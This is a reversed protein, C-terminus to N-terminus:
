NKQNEQEYVEDILLNEQKAATTALKDCIENQTHGSHGKVWKLTPRTERYLRLFRKWLDTNKVKNWNKKEWGFLWNKLVADVVYKSDSHITVQTNEFHRTLKMAEIVAMLEMRNNTTYRYGVSIKNEMPANSNFFATNEEIYIGYGGRGPNGKAAGDTYINLTNL